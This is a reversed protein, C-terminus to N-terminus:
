HRRRRVATLGVLGLGVLLATSHEPVMAIISGTSDDASNGPSGSGIQGVSTFQHPPGGTGASFDQIVLTWSENPEFIGNSTISEAILPANLGISDIKFAQGGSVLGDFNSITTQSDAMYWVDIFSVATFNTITLEYNATNEDDVGCTATMTLSSSASIFEDPPFSEPPVGVGFGLEEVTM